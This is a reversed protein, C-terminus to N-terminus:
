SIQIAKMMPSRLIESSLTVDESIFARLNESDVDCTVPLHSAEFDAEFDEVSEMPEVGGEEVELPLELRV